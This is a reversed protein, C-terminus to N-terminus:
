FIGLMSFFNGFKDRLSPEKFVGFEVIEEFLGEVFDIGVKGFQFYEITFDGFIDHAFSDTGM